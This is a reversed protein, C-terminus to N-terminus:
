WRVTFGALAAAGARTKGERLVLYVSRERLRKPTGGSAAFTKGTWAGRHCPNSEM